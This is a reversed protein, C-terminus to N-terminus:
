RCRIPEDGDLTTTVKCKVLRFGTVVLVGVAFIGFAGAAIKIWYDRMLREPDPGPLHHREVWCVHRAPVPKLGRASLLRDPIISTSPRVFSYPGRM